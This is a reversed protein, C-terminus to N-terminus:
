RGIMGTPQVLEWVRQFGLSSMGVHYTNAYALALTHAGGQPMREVHREDTRHRSWHHSMMSHADGRVEETTGVLFVSVDIGRQALTRAVVFGDGGNSGRGCLVAVSRGGLDPFTAEMAAVVQRGANEMLVISAIGFEDITRRDADRMQASNLIRM